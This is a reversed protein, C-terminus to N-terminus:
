KTITVIIGESALKKRGTATLVYSTAIGAGGAVIKYACNRNALLPEAPSWLGQSATTLAVADAGAFYTRQELFFEAEALALSASEQQCEQKNASKVYGRYSPVAIAAILSLIAIVIMLEILTVGLNQKNLAM